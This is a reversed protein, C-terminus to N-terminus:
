IYSTMVKVQNVAVATTDSDPALNTIALGIGTAFRHGVVGLNISVQSAAPVPITIVPVDTGVTPASAKNYFKVFAAAAGVNSAVIAYVIGAANKILTANTSAASNVNSPTPTILTGQNATITGAVGIPNTTGNQRAGAIYVPFNPTNEVSWFGMTM